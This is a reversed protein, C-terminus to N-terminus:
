RLVKQIEPWNAPKWLYCEVGPVKSLDSLWLQQADTPTGHESKLEALVLRGVGDRVRVLALDPWGSASQMSFRPHYCRWRFLAAMQMVADQFDAESQPPIGVSKRTRRTKPWSLGRTVIAPTM